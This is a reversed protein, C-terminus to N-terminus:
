AEGHDVPQEPLAHKPKPTMDEYGLEKYIEEPTEFKAIPLGAMDANDYTDLFLCSGEHDYKLLFKLVRAPAECGFMYFSGDVCQINLVYFKM